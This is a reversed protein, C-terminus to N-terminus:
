LIFWQLRSFKTFQKQNNVITINELNFRGFSQRTLGKSDNKEETEWVNGLCERVQLYNEVSKSNPAIKKLKRVLKTLNEKVLIGKEAGLCSFDFGKALVRFGESNKNTYIDFLMEDSATETADLIKTEGKKRKQVSQTRREFIMGTVILALEDFLIQTVEDFNFFILSIRDDFFEIGRLRKPLKESALSEDSIILTEIEFEKLRESVIEAEKASEIRAIPLAVGVTLIKELSEAEMNLEKAAESINKKDFIRGNPKFILNFGKEFSELKRLNPRLHSIQSETLELEKGCYFCALRNPPNSRKCQPCDLMEEPKFAFNELTTPLNKLFNEDYNKEAKKEM